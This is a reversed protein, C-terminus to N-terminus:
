YPLENITGGYLAIDIRSRGGDAVNIGIIRGNKIEVFRFLFAGDKNIWFLDGSKLAKYSQPIQKPQAKEIIRKFADVPIDYLAGDARGIFKTRKLKVFEFVKGSKLEVKDGENAYLINTNNEM